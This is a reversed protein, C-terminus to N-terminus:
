RPQQEPFSVLLTTQVEVNEGNERYPQFRWEKVAEMAARTLGEPGSVAHQDAVTGDPAIVVDLLVTGVESTGEPQTADVRHIVLQDMVGPALKVRRTGYLPQTQSALQNWGEQWRWWGFMGVALVVVLASLFTKSVLGSTAVQPQPAPAKVQFREVPKEPSQVAAPQPTGPTKTQPQNDLVRRTWRRIMAQQELSLEMFELGCRLAAQHRVVARTRLGLGLEPLLFEVGVPDGPHVEGALVAAIGGEGLDLSRGPIGQSMGSRQVTIKVPVALPCRPVRRESSNSGIPARAPTTM